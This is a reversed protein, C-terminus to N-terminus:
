PVTIAKQPPESHTAKKKLAWNGPEVERVELMKGLQKMDELKKTAEAKTM